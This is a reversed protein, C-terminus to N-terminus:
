IRGRGWVPGKCGAGAGRCACKRGRRRRGEKQGALDPGLAVKFVEGSSSVMEGEESRHAAIHGGHSRQTRSETVGRAAARWGGRDTPNGLCSCQLPNGNGGGPSGGWGPISGTDGADGLSASLDTVVAVQSAGGVQHPM